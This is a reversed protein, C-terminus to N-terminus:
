EAEEFDFARRGAKDLLLRWDRQYLERMGLSALRIFESDIGTAQSAEFENWGAIDLVKRVTEPSQKMDLNFMCPHGSTYGM